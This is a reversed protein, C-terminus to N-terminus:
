ECVLVRDWDVDEVIDLSSVLVFDVVIVALTLADPETEIESDGDKVMVMLVEMESEGESLADIELECSDVLDPEGVGSVM